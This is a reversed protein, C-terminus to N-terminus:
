RMTRPVSICLSHLAALLGAGPAEFGTPILATVFQAAFLLVAAAIMLRHWTSTNITSM